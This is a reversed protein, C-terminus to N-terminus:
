VEFIPPREIGKIFGIYLNTDSFLAYFKEQTYLFNLTILPHTEFDSVLHKISFNNKQKSSSHDTNMENVLHMFQDRANVVQQKQQNPICKLIVKGDEIKREVYKYLVGNLLIEGSVKEFTTQHPSYPLQIPVELVLLENSTYQKNEIRYDLKVDAHHQLYDFVFRYGIWNFLLLVAFTISVIKKM